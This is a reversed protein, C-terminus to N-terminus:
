AVAHATEKGLETAVAHVLADQTTAKRGLAAGIQTDITGDTVLHIISVPETQGQRHLRANTQEYLELSWPTTVWVLIHGGAQLNLGHGASAPHLLGIPVRGKNWDTFDRSTTLLRAQPFRHLIRAEEHQFWYALLVPQGNAADVIDDLADLKRDHVVTVDREEGTYIAGSALQQLKGSLGAANAADITEDGLTIVMDRKFRDYLKKEAPNMHVPRNTYTVPPLDLYDTTRMSVTIGSIANYIQQEAGDKPKYSFIQMGNRKDPDFYTNRYHTIFRGLRQGGDLLAFQAWLDLLSNPAPTGTLGIIRNIRPRCKRLAKFRKAQHNKFSSLEDIIVMDFPWNAPGIHDVLWPINERNTIYVDADAALAAERTPKDGVVVSYRLRRLHEWKQIEQPWTDRAVRLPAIILARHVTFHDYILNNIATLTIITKGLGMGLLIAAEPHTEIYNTTFEQYPHPSYKM